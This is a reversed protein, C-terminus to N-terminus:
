HYLDQWSTLLIYANQINMFPQSLLHLLCFCHRLAHSLGVMGALSSLVETIISCCSALGPSFIHNQPAASKDPKLHTDRVDHMM